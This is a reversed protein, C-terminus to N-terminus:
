PPGSGPGHNPYGLCPLASCEGSSAPLVALANSLQGRKPVRRRRRRRSSSSSSSSSSVQYKVDYEVPDKLFYKFQFFIQPIILALLALAYNTEGVSALYGAV